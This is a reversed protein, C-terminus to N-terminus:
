NFSTMGYAAVSGPALTYYLKRIELYVECLNVCNPVCWMWKFM